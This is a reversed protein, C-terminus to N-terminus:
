HDRMLRNLRLLFINNSQKIISEYLIKKYYATEYTCVHIYLCNTLHKYIHNLASSM